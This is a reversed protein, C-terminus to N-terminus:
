VCIPFLRQRRRMLSQMLEIPSLDRRALFEMVELSIKIIKWPRVLLIRPVRQYSPNIQTKLDLSFNYFWLRIELNIDKLSLLCTHDDGPRTSHTRYRSKGWEVCCAMCHAGWTKWKFRCIQVSFFLIVIVVSSDIMSLHSFHNITWTCKMKVSLMYFLKRTVKSLITYVSQNIFHLSITFMVSRPALVSNSSACSNFLCFAFLPKHIIQITLLFLLEIRGHM